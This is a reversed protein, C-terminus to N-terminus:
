IQKCLLNDTFSLITQMCHRNQGEVLGYRHTAAKKSPIHSALADESIEVLGIQFKAKREIATIATSGM